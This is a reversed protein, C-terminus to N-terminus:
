GTRRARRAPRQWERIAALAAQAQEDHGVRGDLWAERAAELGVRVAPGPPAGAALLADGRVVAQAPRRQAVHWELRRRGVAASRLWHVMLGAPAIGGLARHLRAGSVGGRELLVAPLPSRAAETAAELAGAAEASLDLRRSTRGAEGRAALAALRYPWAEPTERWMGRLAILAAASGALWARAQRDYRVGPLAQELLGMAALDDLVATPSPEGLLKVVEQRVRAGSVGDLLGDAAAKALLAATRAELQSGLRRTFRAARILRTPDDRFSAEHLVRVRGAALDARGGCPDALEVGGAASLELAIANISFDRRRLDDALGAPAVVPLKGPEPYTEQRATAVDIRRGDPLEIQATLFQSPPRLEGGLEKALAEALRAADGEVVLDLDTPAQGLLLDRVSGGVLFLRQGLAEAIVAARECVDRSDAPLAAWLEGPTQQANM